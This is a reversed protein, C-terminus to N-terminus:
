STFRFTGQIANHGRLDIDALGYAAATTRKYVAAKAVFAPSGPITSFASDNLTTPIGTPSRYPALECHAVGDISLVGTGEAVTFTIKKREIAVFEGILATLDAVPGGLQGTFVARLADYQRSDARDDVFLAAKWNGAMVNGPVFAAIAVGLGSVDVGGVEGHDVYWCEVADCTGPDPDEAVWCPCLINCNCVELLRGDLHYTKAEVATM